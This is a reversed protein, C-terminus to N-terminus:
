CSLHFAGILNQEHSCNNFQEVARPTRMSELIIGRHICYNELLSSVTLMGYYGTGVILHAAKELPILELDNCLLIHGSKRRWNSIVREGFIIVDDTYVQNDITMTSFRYASIRKHECSM